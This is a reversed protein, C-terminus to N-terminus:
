ATTKVSGSCHGGELGDLIPCDPHQDGQCQEALVRLKAAM